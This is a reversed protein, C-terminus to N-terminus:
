RRQRKYSKNYRPKPLYNTLNRASDVVLVAGALSGVAPFANGVNGIGTAVQGGFSGMSGAATQIGGLALGGVSLGVVDGIIKRQRNRRIM